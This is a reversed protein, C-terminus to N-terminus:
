KINSSWSLRARCNAGQLQCLRANSGKLKNLLAVHHSWPLQGFATQVSEFDPWAAAFARMSMLNSRSFGRMRPFEDLLDNSLQAVVKSGRGRQEQREIIERGISWNLRILQVNVSAAARM